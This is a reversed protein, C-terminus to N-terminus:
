KKKLCAFYFGDFGSQAPSIRKEEVLEYKGEQNTLFWKIQEESESPLISCTAYVMKGGSKLMASYNQLIERQTKKINEIFDLQMKWKADPNRKLVGLGSCPVDLLLRDASSELRKIVKNSDIIKTEINQANARKARKQLEDLKWQEVDMSIIKGKNEMLAALHLTKGGAGACADIVRMTPEVDLMPAVLQSSADQIEFLGNKFHISSFINVRKQLVLATPITSITKTPIDSQLLLNQLRLTTTKLTNTRIVVPAPQNLAYLEKDWQKDLEENGLEDLWDPISQFIKRLRKSEEIREFVKKPIISKFEQWDPLQTQLSVQWVGVIKWLEDNSPVYHHSYEIESLFLLWRWWRVIEYTNEAIFARDRAGWKPNSQLTKEIIKDAYKKEVFIQSLSAVVASVLNRHLRM